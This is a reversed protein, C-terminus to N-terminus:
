FADNILEHKYVEALFEFLIALFLIVLFVWSPYIPSSFTEIWMEALVVVFIISLLSLTRLFAYPLFLLWRAPNKM